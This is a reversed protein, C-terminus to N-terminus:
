DLTKDLTDIPYPWLATHPLSKKPKAEALVISAKVLEHIGYVIKQHFLDADVKTANYGGVGLWCALKRLVLEAPTENEYM